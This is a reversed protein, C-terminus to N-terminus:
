TESKLWIRGDIITRFNDDATYEAHMSYDGNEQPEYVEFGHFADLSKIEWAVKGQDVFGKGTAKGITENLYAISFGGEPLEQVTFYNIVKESEGRMEVEQVWTMVGEDFLEPSWRTYFHIHDPTFSFSIKGEGIWVAKELLFKPTM